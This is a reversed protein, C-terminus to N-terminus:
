LHYSGPSKSLVPRDERYVCVCDRGNKKAHYLAIDAAEVLVNPSSSWGGSQAVGVSITVSLEKQGLLVSTSAIRERLRHAFIEANELETEPLIVAFEEGGYRFAMDTSRISGQLGEAVSQLVRDGTQHGYSDNFSKFHDIDFMIFTFVRGYRLYRQLEIKLKEQFSRHNYLGTLGDLMALDEQNKFHTGRELTVSIHESLNQLTALDDSNFQRERGSAMILAAFPKGAMLIPLIMLSRIERNTCELQDTNPYRLDSILLPNKSKCINRLMLRSQARSEVFLIERPVAIISDLDDDDVYRAITCHSYNFVPKLHRLCGACLEKVDLSRHLTQSIGSIAALVLRRKENQQYILVRELSSSILPVLERLFGLYTHPLLEAPINSIRIVGPYDRFMKLPLCVINNEKFGEIPLFHLNQAPTSTYQVDKRQIAKGAISSFIPLTLQDPVQFGKVYKFELATGDLSKWLLVGGEAQFEYVIGDIISQILSDFNDTQAIFRNISSFIKRELDRRELEAIRELLKVHAESEESLASETGSVTSQSLAVKATAGRAMSVTKGKLDFNKGGPEAGHALGSDKSMRFVLVAIVALLVFIIVLLTIVTIFLPTM